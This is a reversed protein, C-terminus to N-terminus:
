INILLLSRYMNKISSVEKKYSNMDELSSISAGAALELMSPQATTLYNLEAEKQSITTEEWANLISDIYLEKNEMVSILEKFMVLTLTNMLNDTILKSSNTVKNINCLLKNLRDDSSTM